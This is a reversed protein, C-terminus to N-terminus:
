DEDQLVITMQKCGSLAGDPGVQCKVVTQQDGQVVLFKMQDRASTIRTVVKPPPACAAGGLLLALIGAGVFSKNM